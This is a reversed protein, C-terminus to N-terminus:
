RQESAHVETLLAAGVAGAYEQMEAFALKPHPRLHPAYLYQTFWRQIPGLYLEGSAALGGGLVFLEPDLLNTLNVLGLAVWRGFEDVVALAETDGELAARQVDEGRVKEPDGGALEVVRDLRHATAAERAMRGLGSGSAYREWCGRRGCPCAIGDPNVVMHGIEGAFGNAGRLLRGAAVIGGGIGTGLTVMTMDQAGRGAGMKWEAVAACTADNDAEVHMALRESVLRGVEFDHIDVLNPAARLIGQRTVLGPVGIGITHFGGLSNAVEVLADVIADPGKPTAVRHEAIITGAPDLVVGLCKTGGVDIGARRLPTM